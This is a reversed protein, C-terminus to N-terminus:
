SAEAKRGSARKRTVGEGSRADMGVGRDEGVGDVRGVGCVEGM